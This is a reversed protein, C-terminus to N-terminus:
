QAKPRKFILAGNSSSSTVLEWGDAGIQNLQRELAERMNLPDIVKYDWAIKMTSRTQGYAAIGFCLVAAAIAAVLKRKM